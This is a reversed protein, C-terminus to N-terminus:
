LAILKVSLSGLISGDDTFETKIKLFIVVVLDIQDNNSVFTILALFRYQIDIIGSSNQVTHFCKRQAPVARVNDVIHLIVQIMQLPICLGYLCVNFVSATIIFVLLQPLCSYLGNSRIDLLIHQFKKIIFVFFAGLNVLIHVFPRYLHYCSTHKDDHDQNNHSKNHDGIYWPCNGSRYPFQAFHCFLRCFSIQRHSGVNGM